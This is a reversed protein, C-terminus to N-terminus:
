SMPASMSAMRGAAMQGALRSLEPSHSLIGAQILDDSQAFWTLVKAIIEAKKMGTERMVRDLSDRAKATVQVTYNVPPIEDADM